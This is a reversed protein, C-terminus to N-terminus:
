QYEEEVARPRKRAETPVTVRLETGSGPESIVTLSGGLLRARERIGFLGIGRGHETQAPLRATDFGVGDDEVVITVNGDEAAISVHVSHANSHRRANELAEETIRYLGAELRASLRSTLGQNNFYWTVTSTERLRRLLQDIADPLSMHHVDAARLDLVSRRAEDLNQRTLELAREVNVKAQDPKSPLYSDALDLQLSIATLGQALTDHIEQAIRGREEAIALGHAHAYLRANEVALAASDAVGQLLNMQAEPYSSNGSLEPLGVIAFGLTRQRTRLPVIVLAHDDRPYGNSSPYPCLPIPTRTELLQQLVPHEDIYLVQNWRNIPETFQHEDTHLLTAPSFQRGTADYLHVLCCTSGAAQALGNALQELVEELQLSSSASRATQLMLKLEGRRKAEQAFLRSNELGIAIQDAITELTTVDHDDFINLRASQVDLVGLLDGSHIIPVAIESCTNMTDPTSAYFDVLRVDDVKVPARRRTARGVVSRCDAPLIRLDTDLNVPIPSRAHMCLCGTHEDVLFITVLSYGFLEHIATTTTRLLQDRDRVEAIGRALHNVAQLQTLSRRQKEILRRNELAVATQRAIATILELDEQDFTGLPRSIALVGYIQESIQLPAGMWARQQGDDLISLPELARERCELRYDDVIIGEGRERVEDSLRRTRPQQELEPRRHGDFWVHRTTLRDLSEDLLAIEIYDCDSNKMTADQVRRYLSDLDTAASVAHAIEILVGLRRVREVRQAEYREEIERAIEEWRDEDIELQAASLIWNVIQGAFESTKSMLLIADLEQDDSVAQRVAEPLVSFSRVAGAILERDPRIGIWQRTMNSEAPDHDLFWNALALISVDFQNRIFEGGPYEPDICALTMWNQLIRERHAFIAGACAAAEQGESSTMV